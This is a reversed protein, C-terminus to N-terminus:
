TPNALADTVRQATELLQRAVPGDWAVDISGSSGIVTLALQM